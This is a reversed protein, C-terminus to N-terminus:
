GSGWRQFLEVPDVPILGTVDAGDNDVQLRTATQHDIEPLTLIV